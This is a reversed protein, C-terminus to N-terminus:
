GGGGMGWHRRSVSPDTQRYAQALVKGRSGSSMRGAMEGACSLASCVTLVILKQAAACAATALQSASPASTGVAHMKVPLSSGHILRGVRTERPMPLVDEAKMTSARAPVYPFLPELHTPQVRLGIM